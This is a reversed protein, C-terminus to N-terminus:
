KKEVVNVVVCMMLLMVCEFKSLNGCRLFGCYSEVGAPWESM